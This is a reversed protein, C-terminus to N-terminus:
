ASTRRGRIGHAVIHLLDEGVDLHSADNVTLIVREDGSVLVASVGTHWPVFWMDREVEAWAGLIANITGGHAVCAVVGNHHRTIVREIAATVRSRFATGDEAGPVSEWRMRTALRVMGMAATAYDDARPELVRAASHTYRRRRSDDDLRVEELGPEVEVHLGAATAVTTATEMARRLPSAVVATLPIRALRDALRHAQSRGRTSLESDFTRMTRQEAHRVLLLLLDPSPPVAATQGTM